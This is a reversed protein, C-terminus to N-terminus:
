AHQIGELNQKFALCTCSCGLIRHRWLERGLFVFQSATRPCSLDCRTVVQTRRAFHLGSSIPTLSPVLIQFFFFLFFDGVVIGAEARWSAHM